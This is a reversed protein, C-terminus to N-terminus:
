AAAGRSTSTGDQRSRGIEELTPASPKLPGKVAEAMSPATEPPTLSPGGDCAPGALIDSLPPATLVPMQEADAKAWTSLADPPTLSPAGNPFPKALIESVSPATPTPMRRETDVKAWDWLSDTRIPLPPAITIATPLLVKRPEAPEVRTSRAKSPTSPILGSLRNRIGGHVSTRSSPGSSPGTPKRAGGHKTAKSMMRGVASAAGTVKSKISM